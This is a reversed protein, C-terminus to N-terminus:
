ESLDMPTRQDITTSPTRSLNQNEFNLGVETKYNLVFVILIAGLTVAVLGPSATQLSGSTKGKQQSISLVYASDTTRLVFLLGTYVILFGFFLAATKAVAFDWSRSFTLIVVLRNEISLDSSSLPSQALAIGHAYNSYQMSLSVILLLLVIFLITTVVIFLQKDLWATRHQQKMTVDAHNLEDDLKGNSQNIATLQSM